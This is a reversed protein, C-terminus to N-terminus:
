NVRVVEIIGLKAHQLVRFTKGTRSAYARQCSELSARTLGENLSVTFSQGILLQGFPYKGNIGIAEREGTSILSPNILELAKPSCEIIAYRGIVDVGILGKLRKIATNIGNVESGTLVGLNVLELAQVQEEIMKKMKDGVMLFYLIIFMAYLM